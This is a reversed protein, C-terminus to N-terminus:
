SLFAKVASMGRLTRAEGTGKIKKWPVGMNNLEQEYVQLLHERRHADERQPDAAWPLDIDCLLYLDPLRQHLQEHVWTDRDNFKDEMWVKITLLDTDCFLLHGAKQRMMEELEIQAQAILLLDNRNYVRDLADIYQRAYEPVAHAEFRSALENALTTKGTSEPGTIV